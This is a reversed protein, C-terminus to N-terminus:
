ESRDRRRVYGDPVSLQAEEDDAPMVDAVDAYVKEGRTRHEIRLRANVGILGEIDFEDGPKVKGGIWGHLTEYLRSKPHTSNSFLSSVEYPRDRDDCLELLWVLRVCERGNYSNPPVFPETVDVLVGLWTGEPAPTFKKKGVIIPMDNGKWPM